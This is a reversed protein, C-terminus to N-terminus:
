KRAGGKCQAVAQRARAPTSHKKSVGANARSTTKSARCYSVHNCIERILQLTADADVQPRTEVVDGAIQQPWILHQYELMLQSPLQTDQLVQWM